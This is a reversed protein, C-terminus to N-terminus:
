RQVARRRRAARQSATGRELWWEAIVINLMMGVWVGIGSFMQMRPDTPGSIEAMQEGYMAFGVIMGVVRTTIIAFTLAFSRVMWRRHEAIRRRRAMRFGMLTVTLWLVALTINAARVVPGFPSLSGVAIALLGGPLVGALVYVRGMVRHAGPHRARFAPWIQFCATVMAVTGCLVHAVLLGYHAEFGEPAPVNAQAPDFTLYRPVALGLFTAALLMLPGIWPRRWFRTRPANPPSIKSPTREVTSSM